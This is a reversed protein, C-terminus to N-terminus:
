ASAWPDLSARRLADLRLYDTTGAAILNCRILCDAIVLSADATVVDRGACNVALIAAAAVAGVFGLFVRKM